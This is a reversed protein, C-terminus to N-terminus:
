RTRGHEGKAYRIRKPLYTKPDDTHRINVGRKPARREIARRDTKRREHM